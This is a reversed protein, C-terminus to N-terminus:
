AAKSGVTVRHPNIDRDFQKADSAKNFGAPARSGKATVVWAHWSKGDDKAIEACIDDLIKKVEAVDKAEFDRRITNRSMIEMERSTGYASREIKILPVAVFNFKAM